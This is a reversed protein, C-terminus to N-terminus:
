FYRFCTFSFIHSSVPKAKSKSDASEDVEGLPATEEEDEDQYELEEPEDRSTRNGFYLDSGSLEDGEKEM